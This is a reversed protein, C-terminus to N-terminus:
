SAVRMLTGQGFENLDEITVQSARKDRGIQFTVAFPADPTEDWPRYTFLDRGFHELPLTKKGGPGLKVSLVGGEEVVIAQGFYPNAYTGVYASLPLPASGSAPLKGYRAKAAEIAPGFLLAYLGNWDTVWDKTSEGKFVYDFFTDVVADPVGTPFANSLVVVGLQRSPILGVV